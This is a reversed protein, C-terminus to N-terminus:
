LYQAQRVISLMGAHAGAPQKSSSGSRLNAAKLWLLERAHLHINVFM